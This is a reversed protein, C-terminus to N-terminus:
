KKLITFEVRRNLQQGEKTDNSSVPKTEGYGKADIRNESIGKAVLYEKVAQARDDSLKLNDTDSGINDTHGAMEIEISPNENLFQVTKNLEPYSEARLTSKGLDFFINNLRIIQGVDIPALMLNKEIMRTEKLNRADVNESITLYSEAKAEYSYFRGSPLAISYDGTSSNSTANGIIEGSILDTYVIDAELPQNTKNDLVIGQIIVVPEPKINISVSDTFTTQKLGIRYLNSSYNESRIFYAFESKSDIMFSNEKESSNIFPGLNIPQSWNTWSDDLRHSVYIDLDGYGIHGDSAFYLTKNDAALFCPLECGTSNIDDGLRIFDKYGGKENQIAVYLDNDFDKYLGQDKSMTLILFKQDYSMIENRYKSKSDFGSIDTKEYKWIFDNRKKKKYTRYINLKNPDRDCVFAVNNDQSIATLGSWTSMKDPLNFESLIVKELAGDKGITGRYIKMAKAKTGVHNFYIYRNDITIRPSTPTKKGSVDDNMYFPKGTFPENKDLNISPFYKESADSLAVGAIQNIGPIKIYDLYIYVDLVNDTLDFFYQSTVIDKESSKTKGEYIIKRLTENKGDSRYGIEIKSIAGPNFNETIIVQQAKCPMFFYHLIGPDKFEKRIKEGKRDEALVAACKANFGAVLTNIKGSGVNSGEIKYSWRVKQSYCLNLAVTFIILFFIINKMYRLSVSVM